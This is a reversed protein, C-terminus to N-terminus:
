AAGHVRRVFRGIVEIAREAEDLMPLFWHWVHIMSPWEEVTVDVGATKARQALGLADDLLVEDSGVQILLAPLAALNAYLPSVLPAKRDGGGVYAQTLEEIADRTVIPDVGAKSVYSEASNTLDVWPSICVGGAPRPLGRDRLALLTAMTLGGGASDGAVVVRAPAIGQALLWQYAAMADDLAAPFPHEPALRYDLLLARTGAARAIAAALHRHSRTSGIVYGGGHLYLVVADTRVGPPTLWEAPRAPAAVTEIKVDPPTPFVREAREYQARRQEITLTNSPPLKALHERVLRIGKDNM